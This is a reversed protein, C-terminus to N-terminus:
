INNTYSSLPKKGEAKFIFFIVIIRIQIPYPRYLFSILAVLAPRFARIVKQNCNLKPLQISFFSVHHSTLFVVAARGAGLNLLSHCFKAHPRSVCQNVLCYFHHKSSKNLSDTELCCLFSNPSLHAFEFNRAM